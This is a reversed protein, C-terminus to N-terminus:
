TFRIVGIISIVVVCIAVFILTRRRAPDQWWNLPRGEEDLKPQPFLDDMDDNPDM